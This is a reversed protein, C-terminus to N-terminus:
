PTHTSLFSCLGGNMVQVDQCLDIPPRRNSEGGQLAVEARQDVKIDRFRKGLPAQPALTL